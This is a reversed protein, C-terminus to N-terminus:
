HCSRLLDAALVFDLECLYDRFRHPNEMVYKCMVLQNIEVNVSEISYDTFHHCVLYDLKRM